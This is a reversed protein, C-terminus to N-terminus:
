SVSDGGFPVLAAEIQCELGEAVSTSAMSDSLSSNEGRSGASRRFGCSIPWRKRCGSPREALREPLLEVGIKEFNVHHEGLAIPSLRIGKKISFIDAPASNQEVLCLTAQGALHTGSTM